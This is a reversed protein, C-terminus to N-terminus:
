DSKQSAFRAHVKLRSRLEEIQDLLDLALAVGPLNLGLDRELRKARQVRVVAIGAFRWQAQDTGVPDIAGYNVLNTVWEAEVHCATCLEDLTCTASTEVIESSVGSSPRDTTM